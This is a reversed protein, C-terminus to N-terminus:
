ALLVPMVWDETDSRYMWASLHLADSDDCLVVDGGTRM